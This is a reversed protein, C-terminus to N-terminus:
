FVRRQTKGSKMAENHLASFDDAQKDFFPELASPLFFFPNIGERRARFMQAIASWGRLCLM